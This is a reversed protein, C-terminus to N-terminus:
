RRLLETIGQRTLECGLLLVIVNTIRYFMAEPTVRVLYIGLFNCAIALPFLAFSTALGAPSFQGLAFYPAVKMANAAAFFMVTTGVYIMKELRQPLVFAYYPPAGIQILTTTFGSLAGWFVGHSARPKPPEGPLMHRFFAYGVFGLAILGVVLRIVGDSVYAALLWAMGVGIVCGPIMVKLNWPDWVRRYVWVSVADQILIIPLLIAAAELPPLILALLPTSVMGIGSFGGKSLGLFVVAPVAVAYFLPDTIITM